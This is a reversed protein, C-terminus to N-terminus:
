RSRLALRSTERGAADRLILEGAALQAFFADYHANAMPAHFPMSGPKALALVEALTNLTWCKGLAIEALRTSGVTGSYVGLFRFRKVSADTLAATDLEAIALPEGQDMRRFVDSNHANGAGMVKEDQAILVPAGSMGERSLSDILLVRGGLPLAPESAISGRKWIPLFYFADAGFQSTMEAKSFPYGLIFVDKAVDEPIPAADEAAHIDVFEFHAELALPLEVIAIDIAGGDPHERWLPKMEGDYLPVTLESVNGERAPVTLKLYNPPPRSIREPEAPDLGTVVHWNTVLLVADATRLFFGTAHSRLVHEGTVPHVVFTQLYTTARSLRHIV